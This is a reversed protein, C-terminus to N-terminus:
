INLTSQRSTLLTDQPMIYIIFIISYITTTLVPFLWPLIPTISLVCLGVVVVCGRAPSPLHVPCSLVCLGGVVCVRVLYDGPLVCLVPVGCSAVGCCAVDCSPRWM